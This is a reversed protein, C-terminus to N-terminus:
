FQTISFRQGAKVLFALKPRNNLTNLQIAWRVATPMANDDLYFTGGVATAGTVVSIDEIVVDEGFTVFDPSGSGALGSRAFTIKTAVADPQYLDISSTAGTRTSRVVMTGASAAM